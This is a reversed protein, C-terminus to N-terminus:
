SKLLETGNVMQSKFTLEMGRKIVVLDWLFSWCGSPFRKTHTAVKLFNVTCNHENGKEGWVIDNFMFMFIIRGQFEEPECKLEAMMKQIENLLEPTTFGTVNKWEVEM